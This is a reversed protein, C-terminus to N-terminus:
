DIEVRKKADMIEDWSLDFQNAVEGITKTAVHDERSVALDYVIEDRADELVQLYKKKYDILELLYEVDVFAGQANKSKSNQVIYIEDTKQGSFTNLIDTLKNQRTLDSINYVNKNLFNIFEAINESPKEINTMTKGGETIIDLAATSSL